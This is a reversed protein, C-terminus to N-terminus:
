HYLVQINVKGIALLSISFMKASMVCAIVKENGVNSNQTANM